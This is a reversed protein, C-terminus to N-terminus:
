YLSFSYSFFFISYLARHGYILESYMDMENAYATMWVTRGAYVPLSALDVCIGQCGDRTRICLVSFHIPFSAVLTPMDGNNM